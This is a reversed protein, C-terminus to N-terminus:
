RKPVRRRTFRESYTSSQGCSKLANRWRKASSRSARSFSWHWELSSHARARSSLPSRPIRHEPSLPSFVGATRTKWRKPPMPSIARSSQLTHAVDPLSLKPHERLYRALNTTAVDLATATKASLPLVQWSRVPASSLEAAPAEELIAHANTGGIGFSSVGARRPETGRQWPTLAANVVFPSSAFDIQPNPSQFHLSPPIVERDLALAAKILGAVGAGADLHGINTKLSGIRCFGTDATTERFARTLAAVEIPDGLSTGTGHAEVYGITEASIEALAHSRAIVQAQGEVSPATFGAKGGGDNNIATARIVGYIRDGDAQAASLPKLVVAAMGSGAVCGRAEADFARCHGDPSPIGGDIYQYGAHLPVRIRGGGVLAMQIEGARLSQCALHLAVLSSSCATQVAIAPGRLHLKHAVRTAVFDKENGITMAYQGLLPALEPHPALNHQLYSNLAIGAYVGIAGSFRSVDCGAHEFASWACELFVRQQPDMLEAERPTYGFFGAAFHDADDLVAAANVYDPQALIGPDVGSRRLEDPTLPRISEVGECLNRWLTEVDSAGPLRAAMGIIAIPEDAVSRNPSRRTVPKPKEYGLQEAIEWTRASLFDDDLVGRWGQAMGAEIRGHERFRPDDFTHVGAAQRPTDPRYPELMEAQFPLHLAEALATIAQEPAGVLDSYRVHHQRERPVNTLFQAINEHAIQWVAEGAQRPTLDTAEPLYVRDMRRSEFSKVMEYPHRSLHIYFADSFIAEAQELAAPDLAYSPSKDVIERPAAWSQLRGFFAATDLGEEECQAFLQEAEDLNCGKIDAIAQVPGRHWITGHYAAGRAALDAFGLLRLESTTVFQSHGALMARLLTTGSRPPALIFIARPNKERAASVIKRPQPLIARVRTYADASLRVDAVSRAPKEGFTRAVAAPYHKRLYEALQAITPAEFLAVAFIPEGLREQIRSILLAGGLSDGGLELFRDHIGVSDLQLTTCWESALYRELDNRPAAFTSDLEPRATAPAPLAAYDIKGNPMLPMAPLTLLSAPVMHPPLMDSAFARLAAVSCSAPTVFAVLRAQDTGAGHVTVAAAEVQPHQQLVAEIAALEIRYGRLKVQRDARGLFELEGDPLRRALDGSRYLRLERGDITRTVFREATLEERNLYGRAVGPGSIYIEGTAGDAVPNGSEDLLHVEAGPIATGISITPKAPDLRAVTSWVSAETPGYENFLEAEPLRTQHQAPLAPPCSEGAVIVVKLASLDADFRRLLLAFLSPLCLTHTIKEAALLGALAQPDREEGAIPLVLTGGACLTWFLGAVSSDFAFSSLLLFREPAKKYYLLRARTSHALNAHTILVGKPRGTSGSTYIVYALSEGSIEPLESTDDAGETLLDELWLREVGAPVEVACARSAVAFQAGCDALVFSIQEAPYLPDLPVYAGGAVLIGLLGTVTECSRDTFLAVRHEAGVGRRRLSRGIAAAQRVLDGYTLSANGARVAMVDPSAKARRTITAPVTSRIEAASRNM